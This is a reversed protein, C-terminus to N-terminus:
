DSPKLIGSHARRSRVPCTQSEPKLFLEKADIADLYPPLGKILRFVSGRTTSVGYQELYKAIAQYGLGQRHLKIVMVFSSESISRPRGINAM